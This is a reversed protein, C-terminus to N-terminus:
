ITNHLHCSDIKNLKDLTDGYLASKKIATRKQRYIACKKNYEDKNKEYYRHAIIKQKDKNNATWKLHYAKQKLRKAELKVALEEETLIKVTRPM